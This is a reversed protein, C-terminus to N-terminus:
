SKLSLYRISKGCVRARNQNSRIKILRYKTGSITSLIARVSKIDSKRTVKVNLNTRHDLQNGSIKLIWWSWCNWCIRSNRVVRFRGKRLEFKRKKSGFNSYKQRSSFDLLRVFGIFWFALVSFFRSIQLKEFQALWSFYNLKFYELFVFM